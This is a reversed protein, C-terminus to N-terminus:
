HHFCDVCVPIINNEPGSEFRLLHKGGPSVLKELSVLKSLRRSAARKVSAPKKFCCISISEDVRYRCFTRGTLSLVFKNLHVTKAAKTQHAVCTSTCTHTCALRKTDSTETALRGVRGIQSPEEAGSRSFGGVLTMDCQDGAWDNPGM